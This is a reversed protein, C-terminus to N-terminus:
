LNLNLIVWRNASKKKYIIGLLNLPMLWRQKTLYSINTLSKRVRARKTRIDCMGALSATLGSSNKWVKAMVKVQDEDLYISVRRMAYEFDYFGELIDSKYEDEDMRPTDEWNFRYNQHCKELQMHLETLSEVKQQLYYDARRRTTNAQIQQRTSLFHFAGTLLSGLLAGTVGIAGGLVTESVMYMRPVTSM